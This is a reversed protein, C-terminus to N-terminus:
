AAQTRLVRRVTRIREVVEGPRHWVDTDWVELVTFGAARLRGLRAQDSVHDVLATHYKASEIEVVLPLHRDKFDVRGCWEEQSGLNVQRDMPAEGHRALIEEFRGELGSAPPLYAPGRAADLERLLTSGARGREAFEKVTRHFTRGDLLRDAWLRDLVREVRHPQIAALECVFRCPSVVPLGDVVKIHNAHLDSVEHVVALTSRRRSIGRHRVVHIPEPRIGAAGWVWGATPAAIAAGPSADLVAALLRSHDTM